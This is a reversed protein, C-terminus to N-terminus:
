APLLIASVNVVLTDTTSKTINIYGNSDKFRATEVVSCYVGAATTLQTINGVAGASYKAGDEIIITPNKAGAPRDIIFLLRAADMTDVDVYVAATSSLVVKESVDDTFDNRVVTTVTIASDGAM